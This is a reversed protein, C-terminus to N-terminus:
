HGVDIAAAHNSRKNTGVSQKLRLLATAKKAEEDIFKTAVHIEECWANTIQFRPKRLGAEADDRVEMIVTNVIFIANREFAARDPRREIAFITKAHTHDPKRVKGVERIEGRQFVHGAYNDVVRPSWFFRSGSIHQNQWAALVGDAIQKPEPLISPLRYDFRVRSGALWKNSYASAELHQSTLYAIWIVRLAVNFEHRAEVEQIEGGHELTLFDCPLGRRPEGFRITKARVGDIM